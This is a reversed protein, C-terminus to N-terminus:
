EGESTSEARARRGMSDLAATAKADFYPPRGDHDYSLERGQEDVCAKVGAEGCVPCHTESESM